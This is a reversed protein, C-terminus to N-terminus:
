SSLEPCFLIKWLMMEENREWICNNTAEGNSWREATAICKGSIWVVFFSRSLPNDRDLFLKSGKRKTTTWWSLTMWQCLCKDLMLSYLPSSSQSTIRGWINSLDMLIQLFILLSLFFTASLPLPTFFSPACHALTQEDHPRPAFM